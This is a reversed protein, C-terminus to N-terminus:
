TDRNSQFLSWIIGGTHGYANRLTCIECENQWKTRVVLIEPHKVSSSGWAESLGFLWGWTVCSVCLSHEHIKIVRLIDLAISLHTWPQTSLLALTRWGPLLVKCLHGQGEHDCLSACGASQGPWKIYDAAITHNISPKWEGSHRCSFLWIFLSSTFISATQALEWLLSIYAPTRGPAVCSSSHKQVFSPRM